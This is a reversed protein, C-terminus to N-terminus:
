TKLLHKKLTIAVAETRNAAGIKAFIVKLHDLINEPTTELLKAIEINSLGQSAAPSFAGSSRSQCQRRFICHCKTGVM